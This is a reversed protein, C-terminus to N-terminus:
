HDAPKLTRHGARAPLVVASSVASERVLDTFHGPDGTSTAIADYNLTGFVQAV